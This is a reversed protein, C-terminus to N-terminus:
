GSEREFTRTGLALGAAVLGLTAVIGWAV